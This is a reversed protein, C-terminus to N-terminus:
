NPIRHSSLLLEYGSSEGSAPLPSAEMGIQNVHGLKCGILSDTATRSGDDQALGNKMKSSWLKRSKDLNEAAPPIPRSFLRCKLKQTVIRWQVTCVISKLIYSVSLRVRFLIAISWLFSDTLGFKSVKLFMLFDICWNQTLMTFHYSLVSQCTQYTGWRCFKYIPPM